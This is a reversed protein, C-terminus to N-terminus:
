AMDGDQPTDVPSIISEDAQENAGSGVSGHRVDSGSDADVAQAPFMVKETGFTSEDVTASPGFRMKTDAVAKPLPDAGSYAGDAVVADIDGPNAARLFTSFTNSFSARDERLAAYGVALVIITV